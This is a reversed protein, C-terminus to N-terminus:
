EDLKNKIVDETSINSIAQKRSNLPLLVDGKFMYNKDGASMVTETREGEEIISSFDLVM